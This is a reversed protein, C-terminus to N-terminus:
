KRVRLVFAVVLIFPLFGLNWIWTCTVGVALVCLCTLIEVVTCLKGAIEEQFLLHMAGQFARGGDLPFVPVLNYVSQLLGCVALQPFVEVALILMLGGAPGALACLVTQGWNLDEAFIKAGDIGVCIGYVTKGCLFLAICHFVEHIVVAAFWGIVWPLPVLFLVAAAFVCFQPSFCINFAREM